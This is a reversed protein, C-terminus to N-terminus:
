QAHRASRGQGLAGLQETGTGLTEAHRHHRAPGSAAHVRAAHLPRRGARAGGRRSPGAAHGRGFAHPSLARLVDDHCPVRRPAPSGVDPGDTAGPRSRWGRGSASSRAWPGSWGRTSTMARDALRGALERRTTALCWPGNAIFILGLVVFQLGLPGRAADTFQPLFALFFLAVKPNLANTVMGQRFIAWHSVRALSQVALASSRSTFARIGLWVLYAAGSYRVVDYALPATVMLTSLGLAAAAVHVLCGVSIGLASVVGATRGQSLSRGVIYLVDPGPTINLLLGAGVFAALTQTDFM